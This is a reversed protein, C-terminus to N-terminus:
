NVPLIPSPVAAQDATLSDLFAVLDAVDKETLNLPQMDASLSPRPLGGSAYHYIMSEFDPMSGNHMFPSRHAINRLGPTKFAHKNKPSSDDIAWRGPDETPLGIDHFKNDTFNWGSHCVSCRAKGAFLEFGRKAAESIAEEDGDVWRDFPAWGSVVTREYTAIAVLITNETLGEDPFAQEFGDAYGDIDSLREVLEELNAGMEVDATIPGAAQDELTEARGDWFFTDLWAMNLITPAHRGLPENAAGVATEVPVEWGFSPNHCAACSMNQAGSMRPDFYLMKGLTAAMPSYPRDSPFPISLPRKYDSKNAALASTAAVTGSLALVSVVAALYKIKM